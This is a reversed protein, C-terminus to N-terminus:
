KVTWKILSRQHESAMPKAVYQQTFALGNEKISSDYIERQEQAIRFGSVAVIKKSAQCAEIYEKGGQVFGEEIKNM